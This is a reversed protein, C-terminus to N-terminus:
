PMDNKPQRKLKRGHIVFKDYTHITDQSVRIKKMKPHSLEDKAARKARNRKDVTDVGTTADKEVSDMIVDASTSSFCPFFSPTDVLQFLAYLLSYFTSVSLAGASKPGIPTKPEGLGAAEVIIFNQVTADNESAAFFFWFV